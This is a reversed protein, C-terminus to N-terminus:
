ELQSFIQTTTSYRRVADTSNNVQHQASTSVSKHQSQRYVANVGQLTNLGEDRSSSSLCVMSVNMDLAVSHSSYLCKDLPFIDCLCM